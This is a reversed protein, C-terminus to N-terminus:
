IFGYESLDSAYGSASRDRISIRKNKRERMWDLHQQRLPAWKEEFRQIQELRHQMTTMQNISVNDAFQVLRFLETGCKPIQTRAWTVYARKHKCIWSFKRGEHRGYTMKADTTDDLNFRM